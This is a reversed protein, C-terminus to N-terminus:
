TIVLTGSDGGFDVPSYDVLVNVSAGFAVTFPLSPTTPNLTFEGSGSITLGSITCDVSGVNGITTSLTQTTGVDVSKYDLVLPSVTIDCENPPLVGTGTLTVPVTPEDPDDSTITLTGSDPGGDTPAYVISINVSAGAAVTFPTSPAGSLSFDTGSLSLGTVTLNETGVNSITTTLTSSMGVTVSNFDLVQPSVAIDPDGRGTGSLQVPVVDEDPDDSAIWLVANVAGRVSPTYAVPVDVSGGSVIVFPVSPAGAGLAFDPSGTLALDTVTLDTEGLNQITTSLTVTTGLRVAGFALSTPSVDIDPIGLGEGSLSVSVSPTDPDNSSIDLTGSDVGVDAPTYDIAVDVSTGFALTLPPTPTAPNFAFDASGGLTFDVSCDVSGRNRITVTLTKTSLKNVQGFDLALPSVEIDCANAPPTGSLDVTIVPQDPDDSDIELTGTDDVFDSPSYDVSVEATGGPAVVFPPVPTAPNLHFDASGGLTLASIHCDASGLNTLTTTLTQTQGIETLGFDLALPNVLLDCAIGTGSLQVPVVSEDPDDSAIWLVGNVAKAVSPTYDIPIDVSGGPAVVLPLGPASPNLAFDQSGTFAFETITLDGNGVNSITTNLTATTGVTVTGFALSTPSVAIDPVTTGTGSLIVSILPTGPADSSIDLTGSDAGSDGPSYDVPVAVSAGPSLVFPPAPAGAGLAFDASGSTTLGTINCDLNGVNTITTSLTATTGVTVTGFALQLPTVDLGCAPPPQIGNGSLPVQIQPTNPDDSDIDLTGTDAGQASPTYAVPVDVSLGPFVTFPPTPAGAGLAFDASGGIALGSVTLVESGINSITATLTVTDGLAVDGFDLALPTVEIDPVGLGTGTLSVSRLGEDPDNSGIWLVGNVTQAVSPTYDISVEISTNPALTFPPSPTGAALTFDGSGTIVLDTISLDANGLNSITVPLTSTTGVTVPGFNLTSPTVDIDQQAQAGPIGWTLGVLSLICFLAIFIKYRM